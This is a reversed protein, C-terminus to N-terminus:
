PPYPAGEGIWSDPSPPDYEGSDDLGGSCKFSLFHMENWCWARVATPSSLTPHCCQARSTMTSLITAPAPPWAPPATILTVRVWPATVMTVGPWVMTVLCRRLTWRWPSVTMATWPAQFLPSILSPRRSMCGDLWYHNAPSLSLPQSPLHDTEMILELTRLQGPELPGNVAITQASQATGNHPALSPLPPQILLTIQPTTQTTCAPPPCHHCSKDSIGARTYNSWVLPPGPPTVRGQHLQSCQATLETFIQHLSWKCQAYDLELESDRDSDTGARKERGPSIPGKLGRCIFYM